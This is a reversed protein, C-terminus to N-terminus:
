EFSTTIGEGVCVVCCVSVVGRFGKWMVPSSIFWVRESYVTFDNFLLRFSREGENLHAHASVEQVCLFHFAGVVSSSCRWAPSSTAFVPWRIEGGESVFEDGHSKGICMVSRCALVCLIACNNVWPTRAAQIIAGHCCLCCFM